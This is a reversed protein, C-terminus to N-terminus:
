RSRPHHSRGVSALSFSRAGTVSSGARKYRLKLSETNCDSSGTRKYRIEFFRSALLQSLYSARRDPPAPSRAFRLRAPSRETPNTPQHTPPNTPQHTSSARRDSGSEPPTREPASGRQITEDCSTAPTDGIELVELEVSLSLYSVGSFRLHSVFNFVWGQWCIFFSYM